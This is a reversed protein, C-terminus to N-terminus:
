KSWVALPNGDPDSFHFRRGGPFSFPARTIRGGAARVRELAGELDDAYIVVLPSSPRHDDGANLGSGVGSAQTDAYDDGWDQYTWGFVAGYFKKARALDKAPLEVYDIHRDNSTM